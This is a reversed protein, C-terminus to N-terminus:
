EARSIKLRERLVNEFPVSKKPKDAVESKKRMVKQIHEDHLIAYVACLMDRLDCAPAVPHLGAAVLHAAYDEGLLTGYDVQCLTLTDETVPGPITWSIDPSLPDGSSIRRLLTPRALTAVNLTIRTAPGSPSSWLDEFVTVGAIVDLAIRCDPGIDEACCVGYRTQVIYKPQWPLRPLITEPSIVM